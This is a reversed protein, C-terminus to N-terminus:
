RYLKVELSTNEGTLSMFELRNVGQGLDLSQGPTYTYVKRGSENVRIKVPHPPDFHYQWGFPIDFPTSWGHVPVTIIRYNTALTRQTPAAKAVAQISRHPYSNVLAIIWLSAMLTLFMVAVTKVIRSKVRFLSGSIVLLVPTVWYAAAHDVLFWDWISFGWQERTYEKLLRLIGTLVGWFIIVYVPVLLPNEKWYEVLEGVRVKWNLPTKNGSNNKQNEMRRRKLQAAILAITCMILLFGVFGILLLALVKFIKSQESIEFEALMLSFPINYIGVGVVAVVLICFTTVLTPKIWKRTKKSEQATPTAWNPASGTTNTSGSLIALANRYKLYERILVALTTPPRYVVIAKCERKRNRVMKWMVLGGVLLTVMLLGIIWIWWSGILYVFLTWFFAM